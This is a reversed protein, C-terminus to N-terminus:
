RHDGIRAPDPAGAHRMAYARFSDLDEERPAVGSFTELDHPTLKLRVEMPEEVDLAYYGIQMGRATM